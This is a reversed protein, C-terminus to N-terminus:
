KLVNGDVVLQNMTDKVFPDSLTLEAEIRLSISYGKMRDAVDILEGIDAVSENYATYSRQEGLSDKLYVKCYPQYIRMVHKLMPVAHAELHAQVMINYMLDFPPDQQKQEYQSYGSVGRSWEITADQAGVRYEAQGVSHWRNLAPIPDERIILFSPYVKRSRVGEANNFIVPVKATQEGSAIAPIDIFYNRKQGGIMKIMVPDTPVEIYGGLTEIVGQDFNRLFVEGTRRDFM